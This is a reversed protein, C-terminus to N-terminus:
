TGARDGLSWGIRKRRGSSRSSRSSSGRREERQIMLTNVGIPNAGCCPSYLSTTTTTTTTTTTKMHIRKM